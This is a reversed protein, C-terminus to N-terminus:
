GQALGAGEQQNAELGLQGKVTYPDASLYVEFRLINWIKGTQHRKHLTIYSERPIYVRRHPRTISHVPLKIEGAVKCSLMRVEGLVCVASARRAAQQMSSERGSIDEVRELTKDM